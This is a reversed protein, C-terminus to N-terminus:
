KGCPLRAPSAPWHTPPSPLTGPPTHAAPLECPRQMDLDDAKRPQDRNTNHTHQQRATPPNKKTRTTPQTPQTNKDHVHNPHTHTQTQPQPNTHQQPPPTPQNKTPRHDGAPRSDNTRCASARRSEPFESIIARSMHLALGLMMRPSIRPFPWVVNGVRPWTQGPDGIRGGFQSVPSPRPRECFQRPGISISLHDAFTRSVASFSPSGSARRLAATQIRRSMRLSNQTPRLARLVARPSHLKNSYKKTTKNITPANHTTHGGSPISLKRRRGRHDRSPPGKLPNGKRVHGPL